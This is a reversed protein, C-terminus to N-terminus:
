RFSVVIATKPNANDPSKDTKARTVIDHQRLVGSNSVIYVGEQTREFSKITVAIYTV